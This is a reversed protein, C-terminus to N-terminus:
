FSAIGTIAECDPRNLLTDFPGEACSHRGFGEAFRLPTRKEHGVQLAVHAAAHIPGNLTFLRERRRRPNDAGYEQALWPVVLWDLRHIPFVQAAIAAVSWQEEVLRVDDGAAVVVVVPEVLSRTAPSWGLPQDFLSAALAIKEFRLRRLRLDPAATAGGRWRRQLWRGYSSGSTQRGSPWAACSTRIGSKAMRCTSGCAIGKACWASSCTAGYGSCCRSTSASEHSRRASSS